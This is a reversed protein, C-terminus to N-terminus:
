DELKPVGCATMFKNKDFAANKLKLANALRNAIRYRTGMDGGDMDGDTGQDIRFAEAIMEFDQKTMSM